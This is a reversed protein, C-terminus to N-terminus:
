ISEDISSTEFIVLIAVIRGIFHLREEGKRCKVLYIITKNIKTAIDGRHFFALCYSKRNILSYPSKLRFFLGPAIRAQSFVKVRRMNLTIIM